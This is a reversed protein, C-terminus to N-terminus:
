VLADVPGFDCYREYLLEAIEAAGSRRIATVVAEFTVATFEVSPSEVLHRQYLEFASQAPGNFAPAIVIFQGAEYLGNELMAAALLHQRWLQQLPAARLAAHDPDKYLGSSRSLEDYRRRLRAPPESMSETYKVEVAIFAKRDDAATGEILADFATRDHTFEPRGRGPSHEFLVNSVDRLQDLSLARLVKRALRLDLKMPGIMNFVAPASSLLNQRVRVDDILAGDERYAIERRALRAVEPTIFNAHREAAATSLYNGLRRTKGEATRYRGIPWDRKERLLSQHLRAAARFRSDAADYAKHRSLVKRSIFPVRGYTAVSV